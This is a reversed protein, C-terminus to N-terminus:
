INIVNELIGKYKNSHIMAENNHEMAVLELVVCINSMKKHPLQKSCLILNPTKTLKSQTKRRRQVKHRKVFFASKKKRCFILLVDILLCLQREVLFDTYNGMCM